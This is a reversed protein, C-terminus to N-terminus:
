EEYLFCNVEHGDAVAVTKPFSVNCRGAMAEACRPHFPCGAPRELPSPLRGGVATLRQGLRDLSPIARLLSRTYPHLPEKLIQRVSGREVIRGLYMVAVEDAIQAIVGLDHTIFIIGMELEDRLERMLSLIQAQITVDLATTPEDAILLSPTSALAVAIMARQRMGGSLEFPYQDIRHTPNAIGVRELLHIALDRAAQKNLKSHQRIAESIQNGITYVPSFSAMPEQFIMGMEGGRIEHIQRSNPKLAAVEV